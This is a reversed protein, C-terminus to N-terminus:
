TPSQICVSQFFFTILPSVPDKQLKNQLHNTDNMFIVIQNRGYFRFSHIYLVLFQELVLWTGKM